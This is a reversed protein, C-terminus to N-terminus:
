IGGQASPETGFYVVFILWAMFFGFGITTHYDVAVQGWAMVAYVVAVLRLVSAAYFGAFSVTLWIAKRRNNAASEIIPISSIFGFALIGKIGTCGYDILLRATKSGPLVLEPGVASIDTGLARCISAVIAALTEDYRLLDVLWREISYGVGIVGFFTAPVWFARLSRYGFMAVCLGIFVFLIDFLGFIRESPEQTLTRVMVAVILALGAAIEWIEPRRSLDGDDELDGWKFSMWILLTLPIVWFYTRTTHLVFYTFPNVLILTFLIPLLHLRTIQPFKM